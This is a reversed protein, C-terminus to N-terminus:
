LLVNKGYYILMQMAQFSHGFKGKYQGYFISPILQFLGVIFNSIKQSNQIFSTM